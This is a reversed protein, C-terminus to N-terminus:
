EQAAGDPAAAVAEAQGANGRRARAASWCLYATGLACLGMVFQLVQGVLPVLGILLLPVGGTFTASFTSGLRPSNINSQIREGVCHAVMTFGSLLLYFFVVLPLLLLMGALPGPLNSGIAALLLMVLFVFIGVRFARFPSQGQIKSGDQVKRPELVSYVLCVALVGIKISLALVLVVLLGSLQQLPPQEKVPEAALLPWSTLAVTSVTVAIRHFSRSCM